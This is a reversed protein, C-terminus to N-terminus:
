TISTNFVAKNTFQCRHIQSLAFRTTGLQFSDCHFTIADLPPVLLRAVGCQPLGNFDGRLRKFGLPTLFLKIRLSIVISNISTSAFQIVYRSFVSRLTLIM